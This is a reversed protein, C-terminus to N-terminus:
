KRDLTPIFGFCVWLSPPFISFPDFNNEYWGELAFPVLPALITSFQWFFAYPLTPCRDYSYTSILFSITLQDKSLDSNERYFIWHDFLNQSIWGLFIGFLLPLDTDTTISKLLDSAFFHFSPAKVNPTLRYPKMASATSISSSFPIITAKLCSRLILLLKSGIYYAMLSFM